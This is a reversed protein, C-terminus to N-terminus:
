ECEKFGLHSKPVRWLIKEEPIGREVLSNKMEQASYESKIAIIILDFERNKLESLGVVEAYDYSYKEYHTDAWAVINCWNYKSIQTYYDRGVKGAGALVVRKNRLMEIPDFYFHPIDLRKYIHLRKLIDRELLQRNIELLDENCDFRLLTRELHYYCRCRESLLLIDEKHSLSDYRYVYHYYANKSVAVTKSRLIYECFSLLDEGQSQDDPVNAYCSRFFDTKYLKSFITNDIMAPNTLCNKLLRRKDYTEDYVIDGLYSRRNSIKGERESYWESHVFDANTVVINKLLDEYMGPEIWDDGDVFAVYNGNAAEIGVKRACVLGRNDQHLVKVRNDSMEFKDCLKSCGDTSGDDVLIIELNKYSQNLVSHVCKELYPAVNYIPIIVSILVENEKM